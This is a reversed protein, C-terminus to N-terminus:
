LECKCGLSYLVRELRSYFKKRWECQECHDTNVTIQKLKQSDVILNKVM